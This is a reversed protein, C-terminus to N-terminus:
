VKPDGKKKPTEPIKHSTNKTSKDWTSITENLLCASDREHAVILGAILKHWKLSLHVYKYKM